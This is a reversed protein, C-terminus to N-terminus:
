PIAIMDWRARLGVCGESVVVFDGGVFELRRWCSDARRITVM